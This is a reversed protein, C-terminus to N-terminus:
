RSSLSGFGSPLLLKSNSVSPSASKKAEALEKKLRNVMGILTSVQERVDQDYAAVAKQAYSIAYNNIELLDVTKTHRCVMSYDTFFPIGLAKMKLCFGLDEGEVPVRTEPDYKFEFWPKQYKSFVERKIFLCGTALGDIFETGGHPIRTPSLGKGNAGKYATFVLQREEEGPRAQIVPYPAGACLWKDGHETVLDLVHEPPTVDSDLFWLIDCDTALFEDVIACRAADHFIRHVLQDPYVLEIKDAYKAAIRRLM